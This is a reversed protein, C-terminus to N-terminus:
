RPLLVDNIPRQNVLGIILHEMVHCDYANDSTQTTTLYAFDNAKNDVRPEKSQIMEDCFALIGDVGDSESELPVSLM